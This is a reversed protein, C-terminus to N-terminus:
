VEHYNQGAYHNGISFFCTELECKGWLGGNVWRGRGNVPQRKVENSLVFLMPNSKAKDIYHRALAIAEKQAHDVHSIRIATNLKTEYVDGALIVGAPHCAHDIGNPVSKGSKLESTDIVRLGAVPKLQSSHVIHLVEVAQLNSGDIDCCLVRPELIKRAPECREEWNYVPRKSRPRAPWEPRQHM